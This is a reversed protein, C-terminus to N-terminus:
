RKTTINNVESQGYSEEITKQFDRLTMGYEMNTKLKELKFM